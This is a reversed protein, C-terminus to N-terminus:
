FGGRDDLAVDVAERDTDGTNDATNDATADADRDVAGDGPAVSPDDSGGPPADSDRDTADWRDNEPNATASAAVAGGVTSAGFATPQASPEHFPPQERDASEADADDTRDTRDDDTRDE